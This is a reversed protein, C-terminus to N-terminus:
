RGFAIASIMLNGHVNRDVIRGQEGFTFCGLFPMGSFSEAVERTVNPMQEDVALMCGACYVVLGGALADAGGPLRSAAQGAVRGAREVLRQKDGRMSYVRAGEEISAFTSLSGDPGIADPHVLLYHPVGEIEGADLALPCMTTDLLINGGQPLKSDLVNGIWRNYTEAAPAGDIAIIQRGRSQTVIGSEGAPDFGVRTVVGSPGAPEYGGQFAYGIGGSPFLAAVVVGRTLPGDPGLQRWNGAV